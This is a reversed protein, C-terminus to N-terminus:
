LFVEEADEMLELDLLLPPDETPAAPKTTTEERAPEEDDDEESENEAINGDAGPLHPALKSWAEYTKKNFKIQISAYDRIIGTLQEELIPQIREAERAIRQSVQELDKRSGEAEREAKALDTEANALKSTKGSRQLKGLAAQRAGIQKIRTTYTVQHEKRKYLAVKVSRVNSKLNNIVQEFKEAEQGEKQALVNSLEASFKSVKGLMNLTRDSGEPCRKTQHTLAWDFLHEGFSKIATANNSVSKVLISADDHLGKVHGELGEIYELLLIIEAEEETTELDSNGRRVSMITGARAIANRMGERVRGRGVGAGPSSVASPTGGTLGASEGVDYHDDNMSTADTNSDNSGGNNPKTRELEAKATDFEFGFEATLFSTLSPADQLEVHGVVDSLFTHLHMQREAILEDSFKTDNTLARRHPIIAIIAGARETQLRQYLWRFDSYRRRVYKSKSEVRYTTYMNRGEEITRPDTVMAEKM